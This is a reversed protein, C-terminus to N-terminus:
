YKKDNYRLFKASTFNKALQTYYNDSLQLSINFYSYDDIYYVGKNRILTKSNNVRMGHSKLLIFSYDMAIPYLASFVSLGQENKSIIHLKGKRVFFEIRSDGVNAIYYYSGLTKEIDLTSSYIQLSLSRDTDDIIGSSIYVAKGHKKQLEDISAFLEVKSPDFVPEEPTNTNQKSSTTFTTSGDVKSLQQATIHEYSVVSYGANSLMIDKTIGQAHKNRGKLINGLKLNALRNPFVTFTNEAIPNFTTKGPTQDPEVFSFHGKNIHYIRPFSNKFVEGVYAYCVEHEQFLRSRSLRVMNPTPNIFCYKHM